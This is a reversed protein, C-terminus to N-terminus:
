PINQHIIPSLYPAIEAQRVIGLASFTDTFLLNIALSRCFQLIQPFCGVLDEKDCRRSFSAM